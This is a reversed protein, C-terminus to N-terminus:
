LGFIMFANFFDFDWPRKNQMFFCILRNCDNKDFRGAKLQVFEQLFGRFILTGQLFLFQTLSLLLEAAKALFEASYREV